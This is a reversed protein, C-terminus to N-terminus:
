KNFAEFIEKEIKSKKLGNKAADLFFSAMINSSDLEVAREYITKAELYKEQSMLCKGLGLYGMIKWKSKSSKLFAEFIVKAKDMQGTLAYDYATHECEYLQEKELWVDVLSDNNINTIECLSETNGVMDGQNVKAMPIFYQYKPNEKIGARFIEEVQIWDGERVKSFANGIRKYIEAREPTINSQLSIRKDYPASLENEVFEVLHFVQDRYKPIQDLYWSVATDDFGYDDDDWVFINLEMGKGNSWGSMELVILPIIAEVAYGDEAIKISAKIDLLDAMYPFYLNNYKYEIVVANNEDKSLFVHSSTQGMSFILEVCDNWYLKGLRKDDFCLKEDIVDVYFYMNMEDMFMQATVDLDKPSDPAPMGYLPVAVKYAKMNDPWDGKEGDIDIRVIGNYKKLEVRPISENIIPFAKIQAFAIEHLLLVLLISIVINREGKSSM